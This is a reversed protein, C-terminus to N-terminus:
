EYKQTLPNCFTIPYGLIDRIHKKRELCTQADECRIDAIQLALSHAHAVVEASLKQWSTEIEDGRLKKRFSFCVIILASGDRFIPDNFRDVSFNPPNLRMQEASDHNLLEPNFGLKSM